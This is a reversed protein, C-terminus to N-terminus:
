KINLTIKFLPLDFSRLANAEGSISTSVIYEGAKANDPFKVLIDTSYCGPLM